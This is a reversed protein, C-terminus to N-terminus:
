LGLKAYTAPGCVGDATLGNHQQFGIVASVTSPGYYGDSGGVPRYGHKTLANQVTGTWASHLIPSKLMLVPHGAAPAPAPAPAPPLPADAGFSVFKSLDIVGLILSNGVGKPAPFAHTNVGGAIPNHNTALYTGSNGGVDHLASGDWCTVLGVHDGQSGPKWGYIVADDPQAEWSARRAGRRAAEAWFYPVFSGGIRHSAQYSPIDLGCRHNVDTFFDDCYAEPPLGLDASFPNPGDYGTAHVTGALSAAYTAVANRSTM